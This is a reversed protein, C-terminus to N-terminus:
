RVFDGPINRIRSTRKEGVRNIWQLDLWLDGCHGPTALSPNRAAPRRCDAQDHFERGVDNQQQGRDQRQADRDLVCTQSRQDALKM